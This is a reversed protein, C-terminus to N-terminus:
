ATKRRRMVTLGGMAAVLMWGAAPLPVAPVVVPDDGAICNAGNPGGPGNDYAVGVCDLRLNGGQSGIWRISTVDAFLDTFTAVYAVGAQLAGAAAGDEYGVINDYVTGLDFQQTAGNSGVVQLFQGPSASPGGGRNSSGNGNGSGNGVNGTLVFYFSTLTFANDADTLRTLTTVADSANGGNSRAEILCSGNGGTSSDACQSSSQFNTGAFFFQGDATTYSGVGNNPVDDFDIIQTQATSVTSAHGAYSVLSMVSAAMVVAITTKM